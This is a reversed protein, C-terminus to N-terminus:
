ATAKSARKFCTLINRFEKRANLKSIGLIEIGELDKALDELNLPRDSTIFMSSTGTKEHGICTAGYKQAVAFYKGLAVVDATSDDLKLRLEYIAM